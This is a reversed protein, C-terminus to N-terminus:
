IPPNKIPSANGIRGPAPSGGGPEGAVLPYRLSDCSFLPALSQGPPPWAYLVAQPRLRFIESFAEGAAVSPHGPLHCVFEGERNDIAAYSIGAARALRALAASLYGWGAGGGSPADGRGEQAVVGPAGAVGPLPFFLRGHGPVARGDLGRPRPCPEVPAAM